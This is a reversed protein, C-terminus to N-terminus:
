ENKKGAKKYIILLITLIVVIAGITILMGEATVGNTPFTVYEENM